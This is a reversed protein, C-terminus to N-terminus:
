FEEEKSWIKSHYLFHWTKGKKVYWYTILKGIEIEWTIEQIMIPMKPETKPFIDKEDFYNRLEIRFDGGWNAKHLAFENKQYAPYKKLAETLPLKALHATDIFINTMKMHNSNKDVVSDNLKHTDHTNNHGNGQTCSLFVVLLTIMGLFTYIHKSKNM